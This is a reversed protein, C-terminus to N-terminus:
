GQVCNLREAARAKAYFDQAPIVRVRAWMAEHGIGCYEHCPMLQDGPKPFTTTFTSVFGPILM